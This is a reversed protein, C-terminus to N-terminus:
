GTERVIATASLGWAGDRVVGGVEFARGGNVVLRDSPQAQSGYPLDIAYPVAWQLRDAVAREEPRLANLARLEGPTTEIAVPAATLNGRSDRTTGTARTVQVSDPFADELTARFEAIEASTIYDGSPM